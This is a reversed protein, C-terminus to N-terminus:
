KVGMATLPNDWPTIGLFVPTLGDFGKNVLSQLAAEDFRVTDGTGTRAVAINKIDIGGNEVHGEKMGKDDSLRFYLISSVSRYFGAVNDPGQGPINITEVKGDSVVNFSASSGGDFNIADKIKWGKGGLKEEIINMAEVFNVGKYPGTRGSLVFTFLRKAGNKEAVGFITRPGLGNDQLQTEQTQMSLSKYWGELGLNKKVAGDDAVLNNHDQYLLTTGGYYWQLDKTGPDQSKFVIPIDTGPKFYAGGGNSKEKLLELDGGRNKFEEGTMSIVIGVSPMLVSGKKILTIKNNIVIINIRDQGVEWKDSIADNFGGKEGPKKSVFTGSIMPTYVVLSKDAPPLVVGAPKEESDVKKEDWDIAINRGEVTATISGAGLRLRGFQLNGEADLGFYGKNYLPIMTTKSGDAETEQFADVYFNVAEIEEGQRDARSRNYAEKLTETFFYLGNIMFDAEPQRRAVEDYSLLSRKGDREDGLPVAQARIMGMPPKPPLLVGHYIETEGVPKGTKQDVRNRVPAFEESLFLGGASEIMEKAAKNLEEQSDRSRVPSVKKGAGVKTIIAFPAEHENPDWHVNVTLWSDFGRALFFRYHSYPINDATFNNMEGKLGLVAAGQQVEQLAVKFEGSLAEPSFNTGRQSQIGPADSRIVFFTRGNMKRLDNFEKQKLVAEVDSETVEDAVRTSKVVFTVKTVGGSKLLEEAFAKMDAALSNVSGAVHVYHKGKVEKIFAGRDDRNNAEYLPDRKDKDKYKMWTSLHGLSSAETGALQEYLNNGFDMFTAALLTNELGSQMGIMRAVVGATEDVKHQLDAERTLLLQVFLKQRVKEIEAYWQEKTLTLRDAQRTLFLEKLAVKYDDFYQARQTKRSDGPIARDLMATVQRDYLLENGIFELEFQGAGATGYKFFKFSFDGANSIRVGPTYMATDSSKMAAAPKETAAAFDVLAVKGRTAHTVAASDSTKTVEAKDPMVKPMGGSFYKRPAIDGTAPDNEERIFNVVGKEYAEIYRQYIQEKLTKDKLDVGETKGKDMYASAMLSDKITDRYWRALIGAYYIQRVIAFNAGTNIEKEIAPLVVERMMDRALGQAPSLTQASTNDSKQAALYDADLMVKLHARTVYVANGHEFVEATDPMIWVKNFAEVPVDITNFKAQAEAYVRGWFEKGTGSDPNLMSATFQKLVYDQALMDRGLDTQGLSEVSMWDHEVPSLNVWQDKEPVTVAALFYKVMRESEEKIRDDAAKDSGSDVIFRFKLPEQPFVVLGKVLVPEFAASVGVTSGPVPLQSVAFQQAQAMSPGFGILVALLASMAKRLM